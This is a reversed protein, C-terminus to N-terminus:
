WITKISSIKRIEKDKTILATKNVLATATIIRDHIDLQKPLQYCTKLIVKDLPVIIINSLRLQQIFKPFVFKKNKLGVHFAELLVISSLFCTSKQSFIGNIIKRSKVSLTKQGTFYWILPHTDLCYKPLSM